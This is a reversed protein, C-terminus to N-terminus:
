FQEQLCIQGKKLITYIWIDFFHQQLIDLWIKSSM